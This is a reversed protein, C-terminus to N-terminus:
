IFNIMKKQHENVIKEDFFYVSFTASSKSNSKRRSIIPYGQKRLDNIVSGLRMIQWNIMAHPSSISKGKFLHELIIEQQTKM